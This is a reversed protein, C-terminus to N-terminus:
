AIVQFCILTPYLCSKKVNNRSTYYVRLEIRGKRSVKYIACHFLEVDVDSIEGLVYILMSLTQKMLM